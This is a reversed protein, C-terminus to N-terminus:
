LGADLGIKRVENETLDTAVGSTKKPWSVWLMGSPLLQKSVAPFQKKLESASKVFVMAFDLDGGDAVVCGALAKKLEAKVEATVNILVVRFREKIGLKNPLTTGSYGAM